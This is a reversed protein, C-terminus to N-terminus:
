RFAEQFDPDLTHVVIAHLLVTLRNEIPHTSEKQTLLLAMVIDQMLEEINEDHVISDDRLIIEAAAEQLDDFIVKLNADM